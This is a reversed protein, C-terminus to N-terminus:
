KKYRSSAFDAFKRFISSHAKQRTKFTKRNKFISRRYAELRLDNKSDLVPSYEVSMKIYAPYGKVYDAQQPDKISIDMFKNDCVFHIKMSRETNKSRWLYQPLSKKDRDSSAKTAKLESNETSTVTRKLAKKDKVNLSLTQKALYSFFDTPHTINYGWANTYSNGLFIWFFLFWRSKM